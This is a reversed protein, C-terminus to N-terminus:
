AVRLGSVAARSRLWFELLIIQRLQPENREMGCLFRHLRAQLGAADIIGRHVMEIRRTGHLLDAALPLLAKRFVSNFSSKSRRALVRHPVVGCLARRMLRRPSGPGCVVWSPVALVFEVLPRHAFPHTYLFERLGEPVQLARSWLMQNLARVHKRRAPRWHSAEGAEEELPAIRRRLEPRLSDEMDRSNVSRIMRREALTWCHWPAALSLASGLISYVPKQLVEGWALADSWAQRFRGELLLDALQGSDDLWNGMVLDGLRGTLLVTSGDSKLRRSLEANRTEWWQPAAGVLQATIYPYDQTELQMSELSCEEKVVERFREDSSTDRYTVGVLRPAEVAGSSILTQAMSVVSSSDLGGSLESYVPGSTRLRVEVAEQFLSQCHEEYESDYRYRITKGPDLHWFRRVSTGAPSAYVAHGPPVAFIGPYPTRFASAGYLAFEALFCDDVEASSCSEAIHRLCSSWVVRGAGCQYYMPRNGAYDSALILHRRGPDWVALAWDGILAPLAAEGRLAFFGAVLAADSLIGLLGLTRVLDSRNDLRGEWAVVLGDPACFIEVWPSPRAPSAALERLQVGPKEYAHVRAGNQCVTRSGAGPDELIDPIFHGAIGSM